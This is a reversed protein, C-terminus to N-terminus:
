PSDNSSSGAVFDRIARLEARIAKTKGHLLNSAFKILRSCAYFSFGSLQEIISGHRKLIALRNKSFHYVYFPKEKHSSGSWKHYIKANLNIGVHIGRERLVCSYSLDEYGFFYAEDLLGITEFLARRAVFCCGTLHETRHTGTWQGNDTEDFGVHMANMRWLTIRGGAYWIRTPDDKYLVKPAVAMWDPCYNLTEILQGLFDPEVVTDNNLLCVYPYGRKLAYRIGVNNGAAFGLNAGNLVFVLAEFGHTHTLLKEQQAVGGTEAEERSYTVTKVPESGFREIQIWEQVKEVSGDTSGNDVLIVRYNPYTIRRLSDLCDITDQWGNWNLIIIAVQHSVEPSKLERNEKVLVM